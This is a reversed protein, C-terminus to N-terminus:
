DGAITSPTAVAAVPRNPEQVPETTPPPAPVESSRTTPKGFGLLGILRTFYSM